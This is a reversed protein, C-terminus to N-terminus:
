ALGTDFRDRPRGPEAIVAIGRGLRQELSARAPRAAADLVAAVEPHLRLTPARPPAVLAARALARLAELAVTLPTKALGGEPTREFLLELLPPHRRKRVLELHGLRTWGLVESDADDALAEHLAERVRERDERRRM